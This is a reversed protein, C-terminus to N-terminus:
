SICVKELIRGWFLWYIPRYLLRLSLVSIGVIIIIRRASNDSNLEYILTFLSAVILLLLIGKKETIDCWSSLCFLLRGRFGIATFARETRKRRQDRRFTKMMQLVNRPDSSSRMLSLMSNTPSPKGGDRIMGDIDGGGNSHMGFGGETDFAYRRAIAEDFEDDDDDLNVAFPNVQFTDKDGGNKDVKIQYDSEYNENEDVLFGSQPITVSRSSSSSATDNSGSSEIEITHHNRNNRSCGDLSSGDTNDDKGGSIGIRFDSNLDETDIRLRNMAAERDQPKMFLDDENEKTEEHNRHSTTM